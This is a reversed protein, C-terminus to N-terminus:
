KQRGKRSCTSCYLCGSPSFSVSKDARLSSKLLIDEELLFNPTIWGHRNIVRTLFSFPSCSTSRVVLISCMTIYLCMQLNGGKQKGALWTQYGVAVLHEHTGWSGGWCLPQGLTQHAVQKGQAERIPQACSQVCLIALIILRMFVNWARKNVRVKAQIIVLKSFMVSQPSLCCPAKPFKHLHPCLTM